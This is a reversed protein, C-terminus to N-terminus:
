QAEERSQLVEQIHNLTLEMDKHAEARDLTTEYEADLFLCIRREREEKPVQRKQAEFISEDLKNPNTCRVALGVVDYFCKELTVVPKGFMIGEWGATGNDTVVLSANAIYPYQSGFPDALITRPYRSVSKLWRTFRRGGNGKHERVLLDLGLPLMSGVFKICHRQTHWLPARFNLMLEPEKHLPLLCYSMGKLEDPSFSRFYKRHAMKCWLIRYMEVIRSFVPALPPGQFGKRVHRLKERVLQWAQAPTSALSLRAFNKWNELIYASPAPANLFSDLRNRGATGIAEGSEMKEEYRRQGRTNDMLLDDTWYIRKALCKSNRLSLFPIGRLECLLYLPHITFDCNARGLVVEVDLLDLQQEWFSFCRLVVREAYSADKRCLQQLRTNFWYYEHETWARVLEREGTLLIRGFSRGSKRECDRVLERLRKEQAPDSEWPQPQLFDFYPLQSAGAKFCHRYNYAESDHCYVTVKSGRELAAGAISRFYYQDPIANLILVHDPTM